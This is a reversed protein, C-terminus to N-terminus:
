VELVAHTKASWHQSLFMVFLLVQICGWWELFRLDVGACVIYQTSRKSAHDCYVMCPSQEVQDMESSSMLPSANMSKLSLSRSSIPNLFPWRMFILLIMRDTLTLTNFRWIIIIIIIIIICETPCYLLIILMFFKFIIIFQVGLTDFISVSYKFNIYM